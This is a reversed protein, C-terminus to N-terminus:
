VAWRSLIVVPRKEGSSGRRWGDLTGEMLVVLGARARVAVWAAVRM